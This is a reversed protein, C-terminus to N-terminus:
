VFRKVKIKLTIPVLIESISNSVTVTIAIAITYEISPDILPDDDESLMPFITCKAAIAATIATTPADVAEINANHESVSLAIDVCIFM